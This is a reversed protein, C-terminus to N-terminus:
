SRQAEASVAKDVSRVNQKSVGFLAPIVWLAAPIASGIGLLVTVGISHLAPHRAIVLAGFGALTTLGSVLVARGTARDLGETTKCVMFIGYDVGLGIVLISAIVNFLNFELGLAGMAGFMVLLGTVVPVAAAVVKDAQRFLVVLLAAVSMSALLIFRFFDRGIAAGVERRFRGQSVLRVADPMQAEVLDALEPRDPVLTLVQAGGEGDSVLSEVLSGLGAERMGQLTVPSGQVALAEFFPAFARESFGLAASERRLEALIRSGRESRWFTQWRLRNTQQEESSPLLPALSVLGEELQEKQLLSFLRGNAALAEELDVGWAWIMAQGRFDGWTRRLDSEAAALEAPVLSMRRLDGNFRLHTSQWGCLVLLLLWASLVPWRRGPKRAFPACGITGEGAGAAPILHPLVLLSLLLAAGIGAISFVALQRQGPLDSFLLVAFGAVTTLGGFLVPRAVEGIITEPSAGGRRLAFYVHLGFDVTIGLLVAGFGITVASVTPFFFSVAVAAICVVAVPVLFVYGARLSRLFCFFLALIALTSGTLIRWLDGRIAEANALTYRHGAILTADIGSPVARRVAEEFGAVLKRAGASDTMPVPTEAVLLASNGDASVFHNNVLRMQPILNIYSLKKLGTRYLSLPDRRIVEKLAWGEPALLREYNEQLRRHVGDDELGAALAELDEATLLSPLADELWVLLRGQIQAEPGSAVRGFLAPDLADALRDAAETLTDTGAEGEARLTIVVKRAFPANQLLRFDAAVESGRDPLMAEINEEMRIRSFAAVSLLVVLATVGYLLRRRVAFVRYASSFIASVNM